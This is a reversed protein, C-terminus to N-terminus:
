TETIRLRELHTLLRLRASSVFYHRPLSNISVCVVRSGSRGLSYPVYTVFNILSPVPPFVKSSPMHKSSHRLKMVHCFEGVIECSQEVNRWKRLESTGFAVM